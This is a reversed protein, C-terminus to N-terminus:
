DMRIQSNTSGTEDAEYFYRPFINRFDKIESSDINTSAAFDMIKKSFTGNAITPIIKCRNLAVYLIDHNLYFKLRADSTIWRTSRTANRFREGFPSRRLLKEKACYAFDCYIRDVERSLVPQRTTLASLQQATSPCTSRANRVIPLKRETPVNSGVRKSERKEREEEQSIIVPWQYRKSVAATVKEYVDRYM